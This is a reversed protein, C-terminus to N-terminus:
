RRRARSNLPIQRPLECGISRQYPTREAVFGAAMSCPDADKGGKRRTCRWTQRPDFHSSSLTLLDLGSREVSRVEILRTAVERIPRNQQFLRFHQWSFIRAFAQRRRIEESSVNKM